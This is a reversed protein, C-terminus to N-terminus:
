KIWKKSKFWEDPKNCEVVTWRKKVNVPIAKNEHLCIILRNVTMALRAEFHERGTL